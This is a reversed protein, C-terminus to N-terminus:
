PDFYYFAHKRSLVVFEHCKRVKGSFRIQFKMFITELPSLEYSVDFGMKESFYSSFIFIDDASFEVWLALRKVIFYVKQVIFLILTTFEVASSYIFARMLSRMKDMGVKM